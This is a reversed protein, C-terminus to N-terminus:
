VAQRCRFGLYISYLLAASLCGFFLLNVQPLLVPYGCINFVKFSNFLGTVKMLDMYNLPNLRYLEQLLAPAIYFFGGIFIVVLPSRNFLSALLVVLSFCAIGFVQIGLHRILYEAMSFNYPSGEMIRSYSIPINGGSFGHVYFAAAATLVTFFLAFGATVIVSALIKATVLRRRGHRSTFILSDMGCNYEALFVPALTILLLATIFGVLYYSNLVILEEWGRCYAFAPPGINKLMKYHLLNKRYAFDEEGAAEAAAIKGALETMILNRERVRNWTRLLQNLIGYIEAGIHPRGAEPEKWSEEFEQM